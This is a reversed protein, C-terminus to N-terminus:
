VPKKRLKVLMDGGPALAGTGPFAKKFGPFASTPKMDEDVYGQFQLDFRLLVMAVAGIAEQKAFIRGPCLTKGGGFPFFRGATGSMSFTQKGTKTDTTLFREANFSYEDSEGVAWSPSHQSLYSPAFVRDGKRLQALLKGDEDIPLILEEPLDRSVLLDSYLRLSEIWISQLLPQTILLHVDLSGDPRTSEKIENLVRPLLSAPAKPDLIHFLMWNTAPIVNSALGFTIGADLCAGSRPSLNRTRYDIQRARSLRSGFYPEWAPGQDPDIPRGGCRRHMEKSWEELRKYIRKRREDAERMLLGPKGFFWQLFEADWRFFDQGFTPYMQLLYEGHLATVSATFMRDRLWEFLGIRDLKVMEEADRDLVNEFVRVFQETLENVRDFNTMYKANLEVEFHKGAQANQIESMPMDFVKRFLDVEILERHPTRAKFLAQVAPPSHVIHCRKGAIVLSTVGVSRPHWKFLNTYFRGPYPAVFSLTNGLWPVWYPVQPPQVVKPGAASAEFQRLALHYHLTTWIRTITLVIAVLILPAITWAFGPTLKTFNDFMDM